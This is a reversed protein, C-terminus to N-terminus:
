VRQFGKSKYYKYDDKDNAQVQFTVYDVGNSSVIKAEEPIDKLAYILDSKTKFNNFIWQCQITLEMKGMVCDGDM